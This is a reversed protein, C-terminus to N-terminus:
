ALGDLDIRVTFPESAVFAGEVAPADLYGFGGALHCAVLSPRPELDIIWYHGIGADAYEGRKIVLDTRRSGPSIIEVVLSAAGAGCCAARAVSGTSRQVRFL